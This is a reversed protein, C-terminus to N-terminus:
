GGGHVKTILDRYEQGVELVKDGFGQGPTVPKIRDKTIDLIVQGKDNTVFVRGPGGKV